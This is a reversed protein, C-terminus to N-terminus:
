NKGSQHKKLYEIANNLLEINDAFHGLGLNCKNCLLSRISNTEHCHDVVLMVERSCISCKGNQLDFMKNYEDERLGYKRLTKNRRNENNSSYKKSASRWSNRLKEKNLEKYSEFYEKRCEKCDSRRKGDNSTIHYETIPKSTKCKSCVKECNEM